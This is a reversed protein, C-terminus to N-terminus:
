TEHYVGDEGNSAEPVDKFKESLDGSGGRPWLLGGLVRANTYGVASARHGELLSTIRSASCSKLWLLVAGELDQMIRWGSITILYPFIVTWHARFIEIIDDFVKYRLRTVVEERSRNM